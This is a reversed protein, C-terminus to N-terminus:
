PLPSASTLQFMRHIQTLESFRKMQAPPSFFDLVNQKTRKSVHLHKLAFHNPRNIRIEIKNKLPLFIGLGFM